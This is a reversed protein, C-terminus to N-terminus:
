RGRANDLSAVRLGNLADEVQSQNESIHSLLRESLDLLPRYLQQRWPHFVRCRLRKGCLKRASMPCMVVREGGLLRARQAKRDFAPHRGLHHLQHAEIRLWNLSGPDLIQGDFHRTLTSDSLSTRKVGLLPCEWRPKNTLGVLAMRRRQPLSIGQSRTM